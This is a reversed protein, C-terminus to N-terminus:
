FVCFRDEVVRFRIAGFNFEHIFLRARVFRRRASPSKEMCTVVCRCTVVGRSESKGSLCGFQLPSVSLSTKLV